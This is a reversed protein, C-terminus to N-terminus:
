IEFETLLTECDGLIRQRHDDFRNRKKSSPLNIYGPLRNKTEEDLEGLVALSRRLAVMFEHDSEFNRRWNHRGFEKRLLGAYEFEQMPQDLDTFVGAKKLLWALSRFPNNRMELPTGPLDEFDIERGFENVLRVLKNRIMYSRYEEIREDMNVRAQRNPPVYFDEHLDVDVEDIELLQLSLALHHGDFIRFSGMPDRIVQINRKSMFRSFEVSKIVEQVKPDAPDMHRRNLFEELTINFGKLFHNLKIRVEKLGADPQGPMLLNLKLRVTRPKVSIRDNIKAHGLTPWAFAAIFVFIFQLTQAGTM